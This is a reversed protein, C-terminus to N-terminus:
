AELQFEWFLSLCHIKAAVPNELNKFSKLVIKGNHLVEGVKQSVDM